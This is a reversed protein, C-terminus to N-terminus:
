VREGTQGGGNRRDDKTGGKDSSLNFGAELTQEVALVEGSPVAIGLEPGDLVAGDGALGAAVGVGFDIM